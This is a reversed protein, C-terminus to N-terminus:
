WSGVLALGFAKDGGVPAVVPASARRAERPLSQRVDRPLSQRVDRPLSQRVDRPKGLVAYLVTAAAVLGAATLIIAGASEMTDASRLRDRNVNCLEAASGASCRISAPDGPNGPLAHNSAEVENVKGTADAFLVASTVIGAAAVGVGAALGALWTPPPPKVDPAPRSARRAELEARAQAMWATITRKEAEVLDASRELFGPQELAFALHTLAEDPHGTKIEAEGLNVAIEWHRKHAWAEAFAARAAAWDGRERADLGRLHASRAAAATDDSAGEQAVTATTAPAPRPPLEAGAIRGGSVLAVLITWVCLAGIQDHRKM